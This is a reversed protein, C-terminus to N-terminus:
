RLNEDIVNKIKKTKEIILKRAKKAAKIKLLDNIYPIFHILTHILLILFAIIIFIPCQVYTGSVFLAFIFYIHLATLSFFSLADFKKLYNKRYKVAVFIFINILVTMIFTFILGKWLQVEPQYLLNFDLQCNFNILNNWYNIQYPLITVIGYIALQLCLGIYAILPSFVMLLKTLFRKPNLTRIFRIVFSFSIAVFIWGVLNEFPVGYWEQNFPIKWYWFGIRIAVVDLVLDTLIVIFADTFPRVQWPTNYQDSLLMACYIIVAWGLGIALPVDLINVLFIDSYYYTHAISINIAELIVGFVACSLLEYVRGGNKKFIERLLLLFFLFFGLLEFGRFLLLNIDIIELM